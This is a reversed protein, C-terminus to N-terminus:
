MLIAIMIVVMTTVAVITIVAMVVTTVVTMVVVQHHHPHDHRHDCYHRHYHHHHCCYDHQHNYHHGHYNHHFHDHRHPPTFILKLYKLVDHILYKLYKINQKTFRVFIKDNFSTKIQIQFTKIKVKWKLRITSILWENECLIIIKM